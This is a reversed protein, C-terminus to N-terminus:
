GGDDHVGPGRPDGDGLDAVVLEGGGLLEHPHQVIRVVVLREDGNSTQRPRPISSQSLCPWIPCSLWVADLVQEAGDQDTPATPDMGAEVARQVRPLFDAWGAQVDAIAQEGIQERREALDALQSDSFYKKATDDM